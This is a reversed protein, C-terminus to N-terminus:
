LFKRIKDLPLRKAASKSNELPYGLQIGSLLSYEKPISFDNHFNNKLEEHHVFFKIGDKVRTGLGKAHAALLFNQMAMAVSTKVSEEAIGSIRESGSIKIAQALGAKDYPRSFVLIYVPAEDFKGYKGFSDLASGFVGGLIKNKEKFEEKTKQYGLDIYGVLKEKAEKTNFVAFFWPQTNCSSPAYGALEILEDIIEKSVEKDSFRSISRREKIIKRLNEM